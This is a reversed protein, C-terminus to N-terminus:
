LCEPKYQRHGASDIFYPPDCSPKAVPPSSSAKASATVVPARAAAIARPPPVVPVAATSPATSAVPEAPPAVNSAPLERAPVQVSAPPAASVSPPAAAHGRAVMAVVGGLALVVGAGAIAGVLVRRDKKKKSRGTTWSAATAGSTAVVTPAFAEATDSQSPLAPRAAGAVNLTRLVRDVCGGARPPGFERLAVALEGVDHFRGERDKQLCRMVAREFGEPVDSRIARLSLPSATAVLVALETV